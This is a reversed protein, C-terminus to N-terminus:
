YIIEDVINKLQEKYPINKNQLIYNREVDLVDIDLNKRDKWINKVLEELNKLDNCFKISSIKEIGRFHEYYKFVNHMNSFLSKDKHILTLFYKKFITSEIMMTQPGGIVFEANKLLSPYYDLEPQNNIKKEIIELIQPDVIVNKYNKVYNLNKSQRWPHPRYIVKIDKFLKQNNELILNLQILVEDENFYHSTGLFLIYQQNFHSKLDENRLEFYKQYRPTGIIKCQKEKFGQIELAHKKTQEGWVTIFDPKAWIVTKSSLNDWNDILGLSKINENKCVRVIDTLDPDLSNTPVLVLDPKIKSIIDKIDENIILKNFVYQQFVKFFVLNSLPWRKIARKVAILIRNLIRLPTLIIPKKYVGNLNFNLRIVIRYIFSRSKKYNKVLLIEYIDGHRHRTKQDYKYFSFFKEKKELEKYFIKLQAKNGIYHCDYNKELISFANTKFYNRIFHDQTYCILIKKKFKTM